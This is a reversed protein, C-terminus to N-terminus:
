SDLCLAPSAVTGVGGVVAGVVGAGLLTQCVSVFFGNVRVCHLAICHLIVCYLVIYM